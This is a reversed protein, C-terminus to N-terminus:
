LVRVVSSIRNRGGGQEDEAGVFVSVVESYDMVNDAWEAVEAVLRVMRPQQQTARSYFNASWGTIVHFKNGSAVKLLLDKKVVTYQRTALEGLGDFVETKVAQATAEAAEQALKVAKRSSIFMQRAVAFGYRKINWAINLGARLAQPASKVVRVAFSAASKLFRASQKFVGTFNGISLLGTVASAISLKKALEPNSDEVVVSAVELGLSAVSLATLAAFVLMSATGGTLISAGIGIVTMAASFAIGRWRSGVPFPQTDRLSQQLSALMQSQGWRSIMIAGSPDHLNVPDPCHGYDNIGGEGFPSLWDPQTHRYVNPDYCRYGNGAHYSGTVPDRRMGNYGSSIATTVKGEGFPLLPTLQLTANKYYGAVGCQPDDILWNVDNGEYEALGPNISRQRSLAGDAAFWDEGILTDGAYRLECTSKDKDVYQAALRQYGDYAYSTQVTADSVQTLQGGANYTLKRAKGDETLYGNGNHKVEVAQKDTTVTKLRTPNSGDYAFAQSRTKGDSYTTVCVQLNSLADWTFRQAKVPKGQEDCPCHKSDEVDCTYDVLRNLADYAFRESRVRKGAEESHKALLQGDGRWELQQAFVAQGNHSFTRLSEQGFVDHESAVQWQAGSRNGHVRREVLRGHEDHRYLVDEHDHWSRLLRGQHDSFVRQWHGDARLTAVTQGRLSQWIYGRTSSRPTTEDLQQKGPLPSVTLSHQWRGVKLDSGQVAGSGSALTTVSGSRSISSLNLTGAQYDGGNGTEALTLPTSDPLIVNDGQFKYERTGVKRTSLTSIDKVTQTAVIQGATAAEGNDFVRLETVHTSMAHYTRQVVSGDPRTQHTVRGLGDRKLLHKRAMGDVTQTLEILRGNADFERVVDARAVGTTSCLTESRKLHGNALTELTSTSRLLTQGGLGQEVTGATDLRDRSWVQRGPIQVQQLPECLALGGPLYDWQQDVVEDDDGTGRLDKRSFPIFPSNGSRRWESRVVRQLGDLWDRQESGNHSTTLACLSGQEIAYSTTVVSEPVTEGNAKFRYRQQKIVRGLGDHEFETQVGDVTKSLCRRSFRSRTERSVEQTGAVTSVRTTVQLGAATPNDEFAQVTTMKVRQDGLVTSQEDTISWVLVKGENPTKPGPESSSTSRVRWLIQEDPNALAWVVTADLRDGTLTAKIGELTVISTAELLQRANRTVSRYGYLTLGLPNGQADCQYEAMLPPTAGEPVAPCSLAPFDTFGSVLASPTLPNTGSATAPYYCRYIAINDATTLKQVTHDASYEIQQKLVNFCGPAADNHALPLLSKALNADMFQGGRLFEVYAHDGGKGWSPNDAVCLIRGVARLLQYTAVAFQMKEVSVRKAVDWGNLVTLLKSEECADLRQLCCEVALVAVLLKIDRAIHNQDFREKMLTVLAAETLFAEYFPKAEAGAKAWAKFEAEAGAEAGAKAWAKFEAEAEADTETRTRAWAWAWAKACTMAEDEARARAEAWADDWADDWVKARVVRAWDQARARKWEQAQERDTNSQYYKSESSLIEHAAGLSMTCSVLEGNSENGCQGNIEVCGGVSRIGVLMEGNKGYQKFERIKQSHSVVDYSAGGEVYSGAYSFDTVVNEAGGGPILLHCTVRPLAPRGDKFTVAKAEYNVREVSGDLERLRYLVRDLTPDDEYDCDVQQLPNLATKDGHTRTFTRLLHDNLILTVRSKELDSSPWVNMEVQAATYSANFLEVDGSKVQRLLFQGAKRQWSLDLTEGYPSVVTSPLLQVSTRQYYAIREDLEKTKDRWKELAEAYDGAAAGSYGTSCLIALAWQTWHSPKAPFEPKSKAKIAQLLRLIEKRFEDNHEATDSGPAAPESLIEQRGSPLDLTFVNRQKNSSIFCAKKALRTGKALAEWEKDTFTITMGDALTLRRERTELSAFRWAWGDGLGAENGRLASYHLTLECVPGRGGLGQLTAVPYHAHFLGTRPDVGTDSAGGADFVESGLTNGYDECLPSSPVYAPRAAPPNFPVVAVNQWLYDEGIYGVHGVTLRTADRCSEPYDLVLKIAIRNRGEGWTVSDSTLSQVAYGSPNRAGRVNFYRDDTEPYCEAVRYGKKRAQESLRFVLEHSCGTIYLLAGDKPYDDRVTVQYRPPVTPASGSLADTELLYKGLQGDSWKGSDGLNELEVLLGGFRPQWLRWAGQRSEGSELKGDDGERGVRLEPWPQKGIAQGLAAEWAAQDALDKALFVTHGLLQKSFPHRVTVLVADNATGWASDLRPGAVWNDSAPLSTFVRLGEGRQWLTLQKAKAVGSAAPRPAAVSACLWQGVTSTNLAKAWDELWKGAACQAETPEWSFSDMLKHSYADYVWAQVAQGASLAEGGQVEQSAWWNVENLTVSLGACQAVWFANGEAAPTIACTATDLVGARVLRSDRNLQECLAKFWAKGAQNSTPTFVHHEYLHQTNLDRVQLCLSQGSALVYDDDCALAQVLNNAFPATSFARYLNRCWLRLDVTGECTLGGNANWGGASIGKGQAVIFSAFAQPWQDAKLAGAVATYDFRQLEGDRERVLCASIVEGEVLDRGARIPCLTHWGKELTGLRELEFGTMDPLYGDPQTTVKFPVASSSVNQPSPASATNASAM